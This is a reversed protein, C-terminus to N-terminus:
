NKRVDVLREGLPPRFCPCGDNMMVETPVAKMRIKHHGVLSLLRSLAYLICM